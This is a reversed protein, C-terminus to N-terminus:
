CIREHSNGSKATAVPTASLYTRYQAQLFRRVAHIMFETAPSRVIDFGHQLGPLEAYVVAANSVTRLRESFIRAGEVPVICDNSGHIVFFPPAGAHVRSVPSAQEWLEPLAEPAAPMIYRTLFQVFAKQMAPIEDRGLFDYRGYIPVAAKIALGTSEPVVDAERWTAGLAALSALHGGASGGTVSIFNPDGGYRAINNRVWAIALNVDELHAPFRAAPSLRYNISVVVWGSAAMLYILPLGQHNKNGLM